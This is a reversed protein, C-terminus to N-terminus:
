EHNAEFRILIPIIGVTVAVPLILYPELGAMTMLLASLGSAVWGSLHGRGSKVFLMMMCAMVLPGAFALAGLDAGSFLTSFTFGCWVSVMWSIWLAVGYGFLYGLNNISRSERLIMVVSPDSLLGLCTLRTFLSPGDLHNTVSLGLLINRSSVLFVSLLIASVPLPHTWLEMAAFQASASFTAGSMVLGWLVSLGSATAAVGFLVGFLFTSVCFPASERMGVRASKWFGDLQM